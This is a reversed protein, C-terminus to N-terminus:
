EGDTGAVYHNGHTGFDWSGHATDAYSGGALYVRTVANNVVRWAVIDADTTIGALPQNGDLRWGWKGSLYVWDEGEATTVKVLQQQHSGGAIVAIDKVYAEEDDAIPELTDVFAHSIALKRIVLIDQSNAQTQEGNGQREYGIQANILDSPSDDAAILRLRGGHVPTYRLLTPDGNPVWPANSIHWDAVIRGPDKSAIMRPGGGSESGAWYGDLFQPCPEWVLSEPEVIELEGMNILSWDYQHVNPDKAEVFYADFLYEPFQICWRSMDRGLTSCDIGDGTHAVASPLEERGDFHWFAGYYANDWLENDVMVQNLLPAAYGIWSYGYRPTLIAGLGYVVLGLSDCSVHDGPDSRLHKSSVLTEMRRDWSGESRLMAYGWGHIVYNDNDIVDGPVRNLEQQEIHKYLTINGVDEPFLDELMYIERFYSRGLQNTCGGGNLHPVSGNSFPFQAANLIARHIKEMVSASVLSRADRGLLQQADLLTQPYQAMSGYSGPENRFSGDDLLINQKELIEAYVSMVQDVLAPDRGAAGVAVLSMLDMAELERDEDYPWSVVSAGKPYDRRLPAVSVTEPGVHGPKYADGDIKIYPSGFHLGDTPSGTDGYASRSVRLLTDGKKADEQLMLVVRLEGWYANFIPLVLNHLIRFQEDDSVLQERSARIALVLPSFGGIEMLLNPLYEPRAWDWRRPVPYFVNHEALRLTHQKAQLGTGQRCYFSGLLSSWMRDWGGYPHDYDWGQRQFIQAVSPLRGERVQDELYQLIGRDYRGKNFGLDERSPLLSEPPDTIDHDVYWASWPVMWFSESPEWAPLSMYHQATSFLYPKRAPNTPVGQLWVMMLEAYDDSVLEKSRVTFVFDQQGDPPLHFVEPEISVIEFRSAQSGSLAWTHPVAFYLENGQSLSFFTGHFAMEVCGDTLRTIKRDRVLMAPPHEYSDLHHPEGLRPMTLGPYNTLIIRTIVPRGDTYQDLNKDASYMAPFVLRLRHQGQTLHASGGMWRVKREPDEWTSYVVEGAWGYCHTTPYLQASGATNGDIMAVVPASHHYMTWLEGYDLVIQYLGPNSVAFEYEAWGGTQAPKLGSVLGRGYSVLSGSYDGSDERGVTIGEAHTFGGPSLEITEIRDAMDAPSVQPDEFLVKQGRVETFDKNKYLYGSFPITGTRGPSVALRYQLREPIREGAAVTWWITNHVVRGGGADVVSTGQPIYEIVSFGSQEAVSAAMLELGVDVTSDPDYDAPLTRRVVVDSEPLPPELSYTLDLFEQDNCDTVRASFYPGPEYHSSILAFTMSNTGRLLLFDEYNEGGAPSNRWDLILKGGNWARCSSRAKFWLRGQREEPSFVYIHYLQSFDGEPMNEAFVGTESYQPTWILMKSTTPLWWMDGFDYIEGPSPMFPCGMYPELGKPDGISGRFGDAPNQGLHLLWKFYGPELPQEAAIVSNAIILLAIFSFQSVKRM